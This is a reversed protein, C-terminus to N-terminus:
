SQILSQKIFPAEKELDATLEYSKCKTENCGRARYHYQSGDENFTLGVTDKLAAPDIGKLTKADFAEPYYGNTQHFTELQFFVANIDGKREADRNEARIGRINILAIASLASLFVIVVMLEIITFGAQKSLNKKM